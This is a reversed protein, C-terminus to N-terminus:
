QSDVSEVLLVFFVVLWPRQTERKCGVTKPWGMSQVSLLKSDLDIQVMGLNRPIVTRYLNEVFHHYWARRRRQGGEGNNVGCPNVGDWGDGNSGM